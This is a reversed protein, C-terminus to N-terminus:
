STSRVAIGAGYVTIGITANVSAAAQVTKPDLHLEYSSPGSAAQIGINFERLHARDWLRRQARSLRKVLVVLRRILWDPDKSQMAMEVHAVYRRGEQGVYLAFVQRGFGKVLSDLRSDSWIDLDVNLFTTEERKVPKSIRRQQRIPPDASRAKAVVIAVRDGATLNEELWSRHSGQSLGGVHLRSEELPQKM